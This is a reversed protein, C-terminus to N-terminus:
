ISTPRNVVVFHAAITTAATAAAAAAVIFHLLFSIWNRMTMSVLLFVFFRVTSSDIARGITM